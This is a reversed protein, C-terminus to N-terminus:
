QEFAELHPDKFLQHKYREDFWPLAWKYKYDDNVADWDVPPKADAIKGLRVLEAEYAARSEPLLSDLDPPPAKSDAYKAHAEKDAQSPRPANPNAVPASYGTSKTTPIAKTALPAAQPAQDVAIPAM